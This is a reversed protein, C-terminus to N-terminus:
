QVTHASSLNQASMTANTANTAIPTARRRTSMKAVTHGATASTALQTPGAHSPVIRTDWCAGCNAAPITSNTM